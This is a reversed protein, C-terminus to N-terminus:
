RREKRRSWAIGVEFANGALSNRGSLIHSIGAEVHLGVMLEEGLVASFELMRPSALNPDFVALDSLQVTEGLSRRGRLACRWFYYRGFLSGGVEGSYLLENQYTGGRYTWGADATAYMWGASAGVLGRVTLDTKGTGLSPNASASYGSPLKIEGALSVPVRGPLIRFRGGLYVDGIGNTNQTAEPLVEGRVIALPEFLRVRKYALSGYATFRDAFGYEGYVRVELDRYETGRVPLGPAELGLREGQADYRSRTSLWAYTVRVYSDGRPHTWAGASAVAPLGFSCALIAALLCSQASGHIVGRAGWRM